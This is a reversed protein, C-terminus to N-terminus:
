QAPIEARDRKSQLCRSQGNAGRVDSEIVTLDIQLSAESDAISSVENSTATEEDLVKRIAALQRDEDNLRPALSGIM